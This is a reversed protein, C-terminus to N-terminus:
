GKGQQGSLHGESPPLDRRSRVPLAKFCATARFINTRKMLGSKPQAHVPLGALVDLGNLFKAQSDGSHINM